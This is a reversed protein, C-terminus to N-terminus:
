SERAKEGLWHLSAGWVLGGQFSAMLLIMLMLYSGPGPESGHFPALHAVWSKEKLQTTLYLGLAMNGFAAASSAKVLRGRGLVFSLPSLLCGLLAAGHLRFAVLFLYLLFILAWIDGEKNESLHMLLVSVILFILGTGCLGTGLGSWLCRDPQRSRLWQLASSGGTALLAPVGLVLMMLSLNGLLPLTVLAVVDM